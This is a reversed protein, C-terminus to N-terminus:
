RRFKNVREYTINNDAIDSDKNVEFTINHEKNEVKESMPDLDLAISPAIVLAVVSM